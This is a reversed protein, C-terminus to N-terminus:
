SVEYMRAVEFGHHKRSILWGAEYAAQVNNHAWGHCDRCMHALNVMSDAGAQSRPRRHHIETARASYCRECLGGSREKVAQYVELVRRSKAM